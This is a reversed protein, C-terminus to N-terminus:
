PSASAAGPSRRPRTKFPGRPFIPTPPFAHSPNSPWPSYEGGKLHQLPMSDIPPLVSDTPTPPLCGMLAHLSETHPQSPCGPLITPCHPPAPVGFYPVPVPFPYSVWPLATPGQIPHLSGPISPLVRHHPVATASPCLCGWPPTLFDMPLHHCWVPSCLSGLSPDPVGHSSAPVGCPPCLGRPLPDPVGCLPTLSGMPPKPSRM